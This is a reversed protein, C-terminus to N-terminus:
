VAFALSDRPEEDVLPPGDFDGIRARRRVRHATQKLIGRRALLGHARRPLDDVRVAARDLAQGLEDIRQDPSVPETVPEPDPAPLSDKLLRNLSALTQESLIGAAQQLKVVNVM